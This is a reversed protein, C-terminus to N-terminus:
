FDIQVHELRKRLEVAKERIQKVVHGPSLHGECDCLGVSLRCNSGTNDAHRVRRELLILGELKALILDLDCPHQKQWPWLDKELLDQMLQKTARALNECPPGSDPDHKAQEYIMSEMAERIIKCMEALTDRQTNCLRDLFQV